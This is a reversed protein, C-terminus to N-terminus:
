KAYRTKMAIYAHKWPKKCHRCHDPYKADRGPRECKCYGYQGSRTKTIDERWAKQFDLLSM